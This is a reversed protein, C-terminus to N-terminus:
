DIGVVERHSGEVKRTKREKRSAPRVYVYHIIGTPITQYKSSELNHLYAQSLYLTQGVAVKEEEVSLPTHLHSINWKCSDLDQTQRIGMLGILGIILTITYKM